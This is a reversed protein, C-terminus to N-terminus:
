QVIDVRNLLNIAVYKTMYLEQAQELLPVSSDYRKVAVVTTHNEIGKHVNAFAGLGIQEHLVQVRHFVNSALELPLWFTRLIVQYADTGINSQLAQECLKVLELVEDLVVQELDKLTNTPPPVHSTTAEEELLIWPPIEQEMFVIALVTKFWTMHISDFARYLPLRVQIQKIQNQVDLIVADDGQMTTTKAIEFSLCVHVQQAVHLLSASSFIFLKHKRVQLNQLM